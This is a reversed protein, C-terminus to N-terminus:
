YGSSHGARDKQSNKRQKQEDQRDDEALLFGNEAHVAKEEARNQDGSANEGVQRGQQYIRASLGFRGGVSSPQRQNRRASRRQYISRGETRNCFRCPSTERSVNEFNAKGILLKGPWQM